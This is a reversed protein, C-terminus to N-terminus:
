RVVCKFGGYNKLDPVPPFIGYGYSGPALHAEPRNFHCIRAATVPPRPAVRNAIVSALQPNLRQRMTFDDYLGDEAGLPALYGIRPRYEDFIKIRRRILCQDEIHSDIVALGLAINRPRSLAANFLGM